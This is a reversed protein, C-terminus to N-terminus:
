TTRATSSHRARIARGSAAAAARRCQYDRSGRSTAIPFPSTSARITTRPRGSCTSLRPCASAWTNNTSGTVQEFASGDPKFRYVAQGFDFTKDGVQGKFRSYGVTGWIFNDFGYMLNSPGAHTDGIGWGTQLIQKVDAKDDGNTDKLFLTHPAATVIVGGNAFVLSTPLNLHDAFVTFKDARGDGNTDEVIKIRDDGPAGNLVVNPYNVAEIIWLRGREDFNFAIPETIDPEKAFLELRFEAPLQIFKMSEEATFPLQYKPAPNRNEYNPVIFTDVYTVEPMKMELYARRAPEEVAWVAAQEILKQFNPNSWTSAEHGYGTYFMRGKGQTRVWTFAERGQSLTRQMLVTTEAGAPPAPAPGEDSTAFAQVDKMIPHAAQVIEATVAAALPQAAPASSGVQSVLSPSHVALVGKGGDVFAALAKQQEATFAQDGFIMLADYYRLKEASLAEAAVPVTILQIGRRALASVLPTMLASSQHPAQDSGVFLVRLPRAESERPMTRQPAAAPRAAGQGPTPPKSQAFVTLTATGLLGALAARAWFRPRTVSLEM